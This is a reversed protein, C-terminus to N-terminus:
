YRVSTARGRHTLPIKSFASCGQASTMGPIVDFPIDAEFLVQAEESGRGFIFPDGGKLRVVTRGKRALAVLMENIESQPITHNRASKGVGILMIGSPILKIIDPSVLRDYVVVDAAQQIKLAKVTLLDPDGPGAGVLYVKGPKTM